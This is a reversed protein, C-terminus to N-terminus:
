AAVARLATTNEDPTFNAEYRAKGSTVKIRSMNIVSGVPVGTQINYGLQIAGNYTLVGSYNASGVAVGDIFLTIVGNKRVVAVHHWQNDAVNITSYVALSSTYWFVLKSDRVGFMWAGGTTAHWQAIIPLTPTAGVYNTKIWGEITFESSALLAKTGNTYALGGSGGTPIKLTSKGHLLNENDLVTGSQRVTQVLQHYGSTIDDQFEFSAMVQGHYVDRNPIQGSGTEAFESNAKVLTLPSCYRAVGRTIRVSDIHGVFTAASNDSFGGISVPISNAHLVGSYTTAGVRQGNMYLRVENGQRTAAIHTWRGVKVTANSVANLVSSWSSGTANALQLTPRNANLGLLWSGNVGNQARGVLVRVGSNAQTMYVWAEITFDDAGFNFLSTNGNLVYASGQDPFYLSSQGLRKVTSSISANGIASLTHLGRKDAFSSAGTSKLLANVNSYWPDFPAETRNRTFPATPIAFNNRYLAKQTVRVQDVMGRINYGGGGGFNGITFSSGTWAVTTAHQGVMVGDIFLKIIGDYRVIAIHYWVGNTPTLGSDILRGGGNYVGLTGSYYRFLFGNGGHDIIYQNSSAGIDNFMVNFEITFDDRLEFVQGQYQVYTSTGFEFADTGFRGPKKTPWNLLTLGSSREDYIQGDDGYYPQCVIHDSFELGELADPRIANRVAAALLINRM